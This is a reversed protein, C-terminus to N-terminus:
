KAKIDLNSSKREYQKAARKSIDSHEQSRTDDQKLGLMAEVPVVLKEAALLEM